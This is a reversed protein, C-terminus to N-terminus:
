GTALARYLQAYRAAVRVARFREVNRLGRAVLDDRYAADDIVRLVGRRIAPVDYPDVLCAAGGAAEPMPALDSTVVPRGVAQAEIIPLGFGEYTSAFLLFDCRVYQDLLEARSLNCHNEWAIDHRALMATQEPSLPGIVVLTCSIGQLAQAVRELNKNPTIGIHLIRPHAANFIAPTHQFEESVPNHIVVVKAPDCRVSDLLASRTAESITVVVQSRRVPLWYWLLWLLWRKVGRLRGLSVLDHVTLVTRPRSLFYTLYHTDGTVHNVDGQAKRAAWADRLRPWLGTSPHLCTWVRADCDAPLAARVDEYLREISFVGPRSQRLYHVIDLHEDTAHSDVTRSNTM